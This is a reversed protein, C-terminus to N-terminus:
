GKQAPPTQPVNGLVWSFFKGAWTYNPTLHSGVRALTYLGFFWTAPSHWDWTTPDV